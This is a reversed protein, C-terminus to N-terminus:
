GSGNASLSEERFLRKHTARICTDMIVELGERRAKEAAQENIIGEQMWVVKAGVQIAQDVIAPVADSRRFILVLDIPQPIMTLDPYAKEGLVTELSPNVPIIHFGHDKLYAPVSYAPAEQNASIGVVAIEKVSTLIKGLMDDSPPPNTQLTTEGTQVSQFNVPLKIEFCTKGPESFVKIEGGHKQIINYSINLGLGSGKGVPKTTFFPSFINPIIEKPIGPGNDEIQVVLWDGERQTRIIIAGKGDMADVANDILNTWVQNLDSGYALIKPLDPQYERRVDVGAKLKSRLLVLTNDLGEHLDVLQIPSQDLYTYNKLAKIITSIRASGQSIEELLSYVSFTAGLWTIVVNIQESAWFKELISLQEPGYSLNVLTPSIEWPSEVGLQELWTEVVEQRDSRAIADLELPQAARWRALQDLYTLAELQDPKLNITYLGLQAQQLKSIADRLQEAGRQAAAAPNNLEHAIGATLTGIQAMKESQRTAIETTRLRATITFLLVRAATPSINILHDLHAHSIELLQCDTRARVTATRPASDLMAMEGIVDGAQRVAIQVSRGGTSKLIELQGKEIIYAQDGMSGEKFLEQGAPLHVEQVMKCLEELDKDPLGEFLPVKKLFDYM